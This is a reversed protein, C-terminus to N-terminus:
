QASELTYVVRRESLAPSVMSIRPIHGLRNEMKVRSARETNNRAGELM